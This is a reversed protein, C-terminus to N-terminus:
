GQKVHNEDLLQMLNEVNVWYSGYDFARQHKKIKSKLWEVDVWKKDVESHNIDSIVVGTKIHESM